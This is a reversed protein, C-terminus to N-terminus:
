LERRHMLRCWGRPHHTFITVQQAGNRHIRDTTFDLSGFRITSGLALGIGTPHNGNSVFSLNPSPVMLVDLPFTRQLDGKKAHWNNTNKAGALYSTTLTV